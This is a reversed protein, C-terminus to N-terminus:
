NDCFAMERDHAGNAQATKVQGSNDACYALIRMVCYALPCRAPHRGGLFSQGTGQGGESRELLASDNGYAGSVQRARM